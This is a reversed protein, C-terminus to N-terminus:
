SIQPILFFIRLIIPFVEFYNSVRFKQFNKMKSSTILFNQVIQYSIKPLIEFYKQVMKLFIEHLNYFNQLLYNQATNLSFKFFM